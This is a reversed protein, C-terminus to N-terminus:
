EGGPLTFENPRSPPGFPDARTSFDFRRIWSEDHLGLAERVARVSRADGGIRVTGARQAEALGCYGLWVVTFAQLNAAVVVDIDYGPHKLCIDVEPPRLVLWWYRAGHWTKGVGSFEFQIVLRKAPLSRMDLNRRMSWMLQAPDTDEPQVRGRGHTQGWMGMLDILPRFAEGQPTLRYEYRPTGAIAAKEIVGALELEHLRQSLLSRSILPM